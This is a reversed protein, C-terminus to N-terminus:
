SSALQPRTLNGFRTILLICRLAATLAAALVLGRVGLDAAFAFYAALAVMLAMTGVEIVSPWAVDRLARASSVAVFSLGDAAMICGALPILSALSAHLAPDHTMLSALPQPLLLWLALLPLLVLVMVRLGNRGTLRPAGAIRSGDAQAVQIGTADAIGLAILAVPANLTMVAAFAALELPGLKGAFLTLCVVLALMTGQILLASSGLKWQLSDQGEAVVADGTSVAPIFWAYGVLILALVVRVSTTSLASGIAGLAPLGAHGGILLWNCVVNLVNAVVVAVAVPVPRQIGELYVAACIGLLAAAFGAGLVAAVPAALAALEAPQGLLRLLPAATCGLVFGLLGLAVAPLLTRRWARRCGALDGAGFARPVVILGGLLFAVGLDLLRGLTGDALSLYAFESPNYRGVMVADAIGMAALGARSVIMPVAIRLLDGTGRSPESM